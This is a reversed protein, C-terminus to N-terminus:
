NGNKKHKAQGNPHRTYLAELVLYVAMEDRRESLLYVMLNHELDVTMRYEFLGLRDARAKEFWNMVLLVFQLAFYTGRGANIDKRTEELEEPNGAFEFKRDLDASDHEYISPLWDIQALTYLLLALIKTHSLGDSDTMLYSREWVDCISVWQAHASRLNSDNIELRYGCVKAVPDSYGIFSRRFTAYDGLWDDLCKETLSEYMALGGGL